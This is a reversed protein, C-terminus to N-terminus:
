GTRVLSVHLVQISRPPQQWQKHRELDRLRQLSVAWGQRSHLGVRHRLQSRGMARESPSSLGTQLMNHVMSDRQPQAFKHYLKAPLRFNAIVQVPRPQERQTPKLPLLSSNNPPRYRRFWSGLFLVIQYDMVEYIFPECSRPPWRFTFAETNIIYNTMLTPTTTTRAAAGQVDTTLAAGNWTGAISLNAGSGTNTV